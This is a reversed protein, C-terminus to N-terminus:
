VHLKVELIIPGKVRATNVMGLLPYNQQQTALVTPLLENVVEESIELHLNAWSDKLDTFQSKFLNDLLARLQAEM